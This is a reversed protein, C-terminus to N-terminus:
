TSSGSVLLHSRNNSFSEVCEVPRRDVLVGGGHDRAGPADVDREVEDRV